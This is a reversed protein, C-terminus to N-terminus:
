NEKNNEINIFNNLNILRQENNNLENLKNINMFRYKIFIKFLNNMISTYEKKQSKDVYGYQKMVKKASSAFNTTFDKQTKIGCKEFFIFLGDLLSKTKEPPYCSLWEDIALSFALATKSLSPVLVFTLKEDNVHWTYLSHQTVGNNGDAKVIRNNKNDILLIGIISDVTVYKFIKDEVRKFTENLTLDEKNGPGEFNYLATIRSQIESTTHIFAYQAINGGKSHGVIYIKSNLPINNVVEELYEKGVSHGPISTSYSLMMSEYWGNISIDTGRFSIVYIDESLKFTMAEFQIKAQESNVRKIYKIEVNKYRTSVILNKLLEEGPKPILSLRTAYKIDEENKIENLILSSKRKLFKKFRFYALQAFIAMDTDLINEKTFPMQNILVYDVINM